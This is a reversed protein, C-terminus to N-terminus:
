DRKGDDAGTQLHTELTQLLEHPFQPRRKRNLCTAVIRAEVAPDAAGCPVVAQCFVFRLKSEREMKLGVVFRDGSRLPSRYDLECRVMVLDFGERHLEVFDIGINKLFSHRAHELYNLYVANNVIGQVDCEYDRVEFELQFEYKTLPM